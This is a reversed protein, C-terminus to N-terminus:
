SRLGSPTASRGTASRGAAETRSLRLHRARRGERWRGAQPFRRRWLFDGFLATKGRRLPTRVVQKLGGWCVVTLPIALAGPPYSRASGRDVRVSHRPRMHPITAVTRTSGLSCGSLAACALLLAPALLVRRCM